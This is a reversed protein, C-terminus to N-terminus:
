FESNAGAADLAKKRIILNNGFGGGAAGLGIAGALYNYRIVHDYCQYLFFFGKGPNKKFM